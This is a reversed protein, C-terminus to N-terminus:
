GAIEFRGGIGDTDAPEAVVSDVRAAPPGRWLLDLMESVAAEPGCILAAVAGDDENRVWGALGRRAAERQTWARFWVGQVHGSIRVKVATPPQKM